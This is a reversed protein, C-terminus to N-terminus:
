PVYPHLNEGESFMPSTQPSHPLQEPHHGWPEAGVEGNFSALLEQLLVPCSCGEGNVHVPPM